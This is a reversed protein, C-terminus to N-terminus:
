IVTEKLYRCRGQVIWLLWSTQFVQKWDDWLRLVRLNIINSERVHCAQIWNRLDSQCTTWYALQRLAFMSRNFGQHGILPRGHVHYLFKQRYPTPVLVQSVPTTRTSTSLSVLRVLVQHANYGILERDRKFWSSDDAAIDHELYEYWMVFDPEARQAVVLEAISPLIRSDSPVSVDMHLASEGSEEEEVVAELKSSHRIEELNSAEIGASPRVRRSCKESSQCNAEADPLPILYQCM